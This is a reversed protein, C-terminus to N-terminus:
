LLKGTEFSNMIQVMFGVLCEVYQNFASRFGVSTDKGVALFSRQTVFAGTCVVVAAIDLADGCTEFLCGEGGLVTM